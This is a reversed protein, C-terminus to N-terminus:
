SAAQVDAVAVHATERVIAANPKRRHWTLRWAFNACVGRSKTLGSAVASTRARFEVKLDNDMYDGIGEHVNCVKPLVGHRWRAFPESVGLSQLV